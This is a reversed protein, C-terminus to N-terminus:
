INSHLLMYEERMTPLISVGIILNHACYRASAAAALYFVMHTWLLDNDFLPLWQVAHHGHKAPGVSLCEECNWIVLRVTEELISLDIRRIFYLTQKITPHGSHSHIKTLQASSLNEMALPKM